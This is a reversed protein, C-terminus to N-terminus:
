IQYWRSRFREHREKIHWECKKAVAHSRQNPKLNRTVDANNTFKLWDLQQYGSALRGLENLVVHLKVIKGLRFKQNLQFAQIPYRLLQQFIRVRQREPKWNQTRVKFQCFRM